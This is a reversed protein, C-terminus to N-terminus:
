TNREVSSDQLVSFSRRFSALKAELQRLKNVEVKFPQLTDIEEELTAIRTSIDEVFIIFNVNIM